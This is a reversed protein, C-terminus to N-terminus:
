MVMNHFDSQISSISIDRKLQPTQTEPSTVSPRIFIPTQPSYTQSVQGVRRQAYSQALQQQTYSQQLQQLQQLESSNYRDNSPTSNYYSTMQPAPAYSQALQQQAYSQQSQQLQLQHLDCSDYLKGM